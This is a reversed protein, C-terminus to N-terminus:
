VRKTVVRSTQVFFHQSFLEDREIPVEWELHGNSFNRIPRINDVEFMTPEPQRSEYWVVQSKQATPAVAETPEAKEAAAKKPKDSM